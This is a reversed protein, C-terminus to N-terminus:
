SAKSCVECVMCRASGGGHREITGLHPAVITGHRELLARQDHTLSALATGSMVVVGGGWGSRLMLMNGAFEDRQAASIEVVERGGARLEGVVAARERGDAISESCVVAVTEGMAMVVNTHYVPGRGDVAGFEVARYGMETCFADLGARTTRPSRAAFAVRARRDLVMSGTGELFVGREALRTLDVVEWAVGVERGVMEVVERRVEARRSPSMMPYLVARGSGSRDGAHFSVWNNPYIADPRRVGDAADEAVIVWVGAGRLETVMADFERVAASHVERGDAGTARQQFANTAATEENFGFGAPRVMLVTDAVFEGM